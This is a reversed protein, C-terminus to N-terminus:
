SGDDKKSEIQDFEIELLLDMMGNQPLDKRSKCNDYVEKNRAFSRLKMITLIMQSPDNDLAHEAAAPLCGFEECVRSV